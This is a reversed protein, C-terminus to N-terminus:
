RTPSSDPRRIRRWIWALLDPDFKRDLQQDPTPVPGDPGLEAVKFRFV